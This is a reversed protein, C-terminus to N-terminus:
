ERSARASGAVSVRLVSDSVVGPCPLRCVAARSEGPPLNQWGSQHDGQGVNFSGMRPAGPVPDGAISHKERQGREGLRLIQIGRKVPSAWCEAAADRAGIAAVARQSNDGSSAHRLHYKCCRVTARSHFPNAPLPLVGFFETLHGRPLFCFATLAVLIAFLGVVVRQEGGPRGSSSVLGLPAYVRNRLFHGLKGEKVSPKTIQLLALGAPLLALPLLGFAGVRLASHAYSSEMPEPAETAGETTWSAAMKGFLEGYYGRFQEPAVGYLAWDGGTTYRDWIWVHFREGRRGIRMSLERSAHVEQDSSVAIADSGGLETEAAAPTGLFQLPEEVVLFAVGANSTSVFRLDRHNRIVRWGEPYAASYGDGKVVAFQTTRSAEPPREFEAEFLTTIEHAGTLFLASLVLAIYPVPLPHQLQAGKPGFMAFPGVFVALVIAITAYVTYHHVIVYLVVALALFFVLGILRFAKSEGFRVMLCATVLLVVAGICLAVLDGSEAYFDRAEMSRLTFYVIAAAFVGTAAYLLLKPRAFVSRAAEAVLESVEAFDTGALFLVPILFLAFHFVQDTIVEYFSESGTKPLLLWLLLYYCALSSSLSVLIRAASKWDFREFEEYLPKRNSRWRALGWSWIIAMLGLWPVLLAAQLHSPRTSFTFLGLIALLSKRGKSAGALVFSWAFIISLVCIVIVRWDMQLPQEALSGVNVPMAPSRYVALVIASTAIQAIASLTILRLPPDMSGIRILRHSFGSWLERLAKFLGGHIGGGEFEDGEDDGPHEPVFRLFLWTTILSLSVASTFFGISWPLIGSCFIGIAVALAFVGLISGGFLYLIGRGLRQLADEAAKLHLLRALLILAILAILLCVLAGFALLFFPAVDRVWAPRM